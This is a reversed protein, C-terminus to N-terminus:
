WGFISRASRSSTPTSASTRQICGSNPSTEGASNTSAMSAVPEM